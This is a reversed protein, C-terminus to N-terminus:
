NCSVTSVKIMRKYREDETEVYGERVYTSLDSFINLNPQDGLFSEMLQSFQSVNLVNEDFASTQSHSRSGLSTYVPFWVFIFHLPVDSVRGTTLFFYTPSVSSRHSM